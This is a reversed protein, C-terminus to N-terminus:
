TFCSGAVDMRLGCRSMRFDWFWGNADTWCDGDPVVFRLGNVVVGVVEEWLATGEWGTSGEGVSFAIRPNEVIDGRVVTAMPEIDIAAGIALGETLAGDECAGRGKAAAPPLLADGSVLRWPPLLMRLRAACIGKKASTSEGGDKDTVGGGGDAGVGAIPSLGNASEKVATWFPAAGVLWDTVIAFAPVPVRAQVAEEFIAQSFTLLAVDAVPVLAFVSVTLTFWVPSIVPVCVPTIKTVAEPAVFVGCFMETLKM